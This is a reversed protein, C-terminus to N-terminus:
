PLESEPACYKHIWKGADSKVIEQGVKIDSNCEPCTTKFKAKVSYM